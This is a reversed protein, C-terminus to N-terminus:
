YDNGVCYSMARNNSKYREHINPKIHDGAMSISLTSDLGFDKDHDSEHCFSREHCHDYEVEFRPPEVVLNIAKIEDQFLENNIFFSDDRNSAKPEYIGGIDQGNVPRLHFFELMM